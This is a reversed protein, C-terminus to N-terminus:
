IRFRLFHREWMITDGGCGLGLYVGFGELVLLCRYPTVSGAGVGLVSLSLVLSSGGVAVVKSFAGRCDRLFSPLRTAQITPRCLDRNFLWVSEQSWYLCRNVTTGNVNTFNAVGGVVNRNVRDIEGRRLTRIHNRLPRFLHCNFFLTSSSMAIVISITGHQHEGGM